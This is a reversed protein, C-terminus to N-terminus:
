YGLQRKVAAVRERDIRHRAELEKLRQERRWAAEDQPSRWRLSGSESLTSSNGDRANRKTPPEPRPINRAYDLARARREQAQIREPPPPQRRRKSPTESALAGEEGQEELQQRQLLIWQQQKERIKEVALKEALEGYQRQRQLKEKAQRQEDTDTPGLGGLKLNAVQEMMMKYDKWKYAKYAPNKKKVEERESEKTETLAGSSTASAADADPASTFALPPLRSPHSLIRTTTSPVSMPSEKGDSAIHNNGRTRPLQGQRSDRPGEETAPRKAGSALKKQRAANLPKKNGNKALNPKAFMMFGMPQYMPIIPSADAASESRNDGLRGSSDTEGDGQVVAGNSSGRNQSSSSGGVNKQQTYSSPSALANKPRPMLQAEDADGTESIRRPPLRSLPKPLGNGVQVSGVPEPLPRSRPLLARVPRLADVREVSLVEPSQSRGTSFSLADSPQRRPPVVAAAATTGRQNDLRSHPSLEIVPVAANPAERRDVGPAALLRRPQRGGSTGRDLCSNFNNALPRPAPPGAKLEDPAVIGGAHRRNKLPLPMMMPKKNHMDAECGVSAPVSNGGENKRNSGDSWRIPKTQKVRVLQANSGDKGVRVARDQFHQMFASPPEEVAKRDEPPDWVDRDKRPM